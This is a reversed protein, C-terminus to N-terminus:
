SCNKFGLRLNQFRFGSELTFTLTVPILIKVHMSLDQELAHTHWIKFTYKLQYRLQSCNEFGLRLNQFRFASESTLTLTLTVPTLGKAHMSLDQGLAHTYASYLLYVKFPIPTTIIKRFM